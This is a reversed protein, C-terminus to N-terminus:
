GSEGVRQSLWDSIIALAEPSFTEEIQGYESVQGTDATQFLHNLRDLRQITVDTNGSRALAAEIAPLNQEASVQLDLTGNLALVPV